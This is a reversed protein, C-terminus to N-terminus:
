LTVRVIRANGFAMGQTPEIRYSVVPFLPEERNCKDVIHRANPISVILTRGDKTKVVERTKCM